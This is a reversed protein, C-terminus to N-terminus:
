RLHRRLLDLASQSARLKFTERDTSITHREVVSERPTALGIFLTGVPTGPVGGGPGAFGTTALAFTAGTRVRLNEAMARAVAESVAFDQAVLSEDLGLARTKAAASYTVCGELFVSSAGPVNTIRHAILGGTCSEAIALTEGRQTLTQVLVTELPRDDDSVLYASLAERIIKEAADLASKSGICRVEVEGPHACYGLELGSIATLPADILQAARSEGIGAFRFNRCEEIDAAPAIKKLIPLVSDAFMPNLERPPGPLLFLHPSKESVPLYLGPASGNPNPLVIAGDPVQAQRANDPPMPHSHQTFQAEIEALLKEDIRLERGLTEAVIDRTIDDSTPGLGGTILVIESRTFAERLADRIPEGDPVATQRAIRLGLPFLARGLFVLDTNTVRGLLLETGTNIIELRM